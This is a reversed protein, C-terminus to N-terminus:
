DGIRKIDQVTVLVAGKTSFGKHIEKAKELWMGETIYEAKGLVKYGFCSEEWNKSWVVLSVNNNRKLNEISTKLYNDGILIKGEIVRVDAVACVNPERGNTTALAVPNNEILSKAEQNIM